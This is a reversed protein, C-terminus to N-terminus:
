TYLVERTSTVTEKITRDSCIDGFIKIFKEDNKLLFIRRPMAYTQSDLPTIMFVRDTM